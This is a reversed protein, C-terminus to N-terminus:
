TSAGFPTKAAVGVTKTYADSINKAQEHLSNLQTSMFETQIITVEQWNKARTLKQVFELAAATNEATYDLLKKNLDTNGWPAASMASQLWGFYNKMAGQAKEMSHEALQEAIGTLSQFPEKDTAM